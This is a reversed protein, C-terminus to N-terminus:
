RAPVPVDLLYSTEWRTRFRARAVSQRRRLFRSMPGFGEPTDWGCTADPSRGAVDEFVGAWMPLSIGAGNYGHLGYSAPIWVHGDSAWRAMFWVVIRGDICVARCLEPSVSDELRFPDLGPPLDMTALQRQLEARQQRGTADWRIIRGPVPPLRGSM